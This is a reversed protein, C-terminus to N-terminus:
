WAALELWLHVVIIVTLETPSGTSGSSSNISDLVPM